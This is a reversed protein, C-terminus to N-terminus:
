NSKEEKDPAFGSDGGKYGGKRWNLGGETRRKGGRSSPGTARWLELGEKPNEGISDGKKGRRRGKPVSSKNKIGDLAGGREVHGV